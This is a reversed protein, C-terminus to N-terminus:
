ARKSRECRRKKGMQALFPNSRREHMYKAEYLRAPPSPGGEGLQGAKTIILIKLCSPSEAPPSCLCQFSMEAKMLSLQVAKLTSVAMSRVLAERKETEFSSAVAETRTVPVHRWCAASRLRKIADLLSRAHRHHRWTTARQCALPAESVRSVPAGGLDQLVVGHLRM